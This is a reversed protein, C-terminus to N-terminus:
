AIVSEETERYYSAQKQFMSFYVGELDMLSTHSGDEVIRGKEFVLIRDVFRTIALRHSVIISTKERVLTQILNMIEHEAHPDLAATPEDLLLLELSPNCALDIILRTLALRQWQGGSLELGGDVHKSLVQQLKGKLTDALNVQELVTELFKLDQVQGRLDMNTQVSLPLKAFDQFMASLKNRYFQFDLTQLNTGSWYIAGGTPDYFRCILKIFTSKGSGNEGVVAIREGRQIALTLNEFLLSNTGPYSFGVDQFLMLNNSTRKTTKKAKLVHSEKINLLNVLSSLAFNAKLLDGGTFIIHAISNNLQFIMMFLFSLSGLTLAGQVAGNSVDYFCVAIGLGSLLSFLCVFAVSKQRIKNVQDFFTKFLQNWADLLKGQMHYLRIEQAYPKSTLCDEYLEMQKFLPACGFRADWTKKHLRISIYLLPTLTACLVIPIWWNFVYVSILAPVLCFVNKMFHSSLNLMRALEQTHEKALNIRNSIDPTEFLDVQPYCSIKQLLATKIRQFIKNEFYDAFFNHFTAFIENLLLFFSCSFILLIIFQWLLAATQPKAAAVAVTDVLRSMGYSALIPSLGSLLQVLFLLGLPTYHGTLIYQVFRFFTVPNKAKTSM